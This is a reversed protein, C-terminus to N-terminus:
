INRSKLYEEVDKWKELTDIGKSYDDCEYGYFNDGQSLAAPILDKNIDSIVNEQLYALIKKRLIFIGRLRYINEYKEQHPKKHITLFRGQADLEAVDADAYDDTKKVREMGIPNEKTFFVDRMKSYDILSFIDGFIFFFVEDLQKEFSKIAGASGLPEKEIFYSIKVGWRSGDGFHNIIVEPLYHLTLFIENIFHKKFREIQWELLPKGLIPIMVKPLSDTIPRLRTGSGGASIVAQKIKFNM